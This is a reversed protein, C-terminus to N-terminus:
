INENMRRKYQSDGVNLSVPPPNYSIRELKPLSLLYGAYDHEFSHNSSTSGTELCGTPPPPCASSSLYGRPCTKYAADPNLTTTSAELPQVKTTLATSIPPKFIGIEPLKGVVDTHGDLQKEVTMATASMNALQHREWRKRESTVMKHATIEEQITHELLNRQEYKALEEPGSDVVEMTQPIGISHNGHPHGETVRVHATNASAYHPFREADVQSPANQGPANQYPTVISPYTSPASQVAARKMAWTPEPQPLYRDQITNYPLPMEQLGIPCPGQSFTNPTPAEAHPAQDNLLNLPGNAFASNSDLRSVVGGQEIDIDLDIQAPELVTPDTRTAHDSNRGCDTM